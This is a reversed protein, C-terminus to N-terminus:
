KHTLEQLFETAENLKPDQRLAQEYALRAESFKGTEQLLIGLEVYRPPSPQAAVSQTLWQVMDASREPTVKLAQQYNSRVKAYDELADYVAALSEYYHSQVARERTLSIATEYEPIADQLRNCQVLDVALNGHRVSDAPLLQASKELFPLAEKARGMKNLADGLNSIGLPSGPVVELDHAWLDYESRWYSIQRATLLSLVALIIAASAVRWRFGIQQHLAWDAAGWVVMVFIGILPIYAYRDARAQDGVQVLGIVPVMIGLYWLWGTVLYRHTRRQRWVLVSAAALFLAAVAVRWVALTNGPHPYYVALRTPWFAKWLYMAYAYIANELRVSIPFSKLSRVAVARQAAITLVASGACLALLPLKELALRSFSAQTFSCEPKAASSKFGVKENPQRGKRNPAPLQDWGQIRKLPWFDLLLLVFPLTIVMPKSALGLLFLTTLALYRKINPNRAYWGYAGLALLFFLTSLTSKREAVWAVTEVNLPHIAFLAAVLLSRGIAGTARLLLLFLIVVNLVHLVLNTLHHGAPNLGYLQCDLAHSLWTLPHWNQAYGANFSWIFVKWNLGAHLIANNTVYYQDDFDIFPHRAVSSYLASTGIALFLCSIIILHKRRRDMPHNALADSSLSRTPRSRGSALVKSVSFLKDFPSGIAVPGVL